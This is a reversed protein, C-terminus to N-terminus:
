SAGPDIARSYKYPGSKIACASRERVLDMVITAATRADM